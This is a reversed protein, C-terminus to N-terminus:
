SSKTEKLLKATWSLAGMAVVVIAIFIFGGDLDFRNVVQGMIPQSLTEGVAAFIMVTALAHASNKAAVSFVFPFVTAIGGGLLFFGISSVFVNPILVALLIGSVSVLCGTAIVAGAGFRNRLRDGFFRMFLLASAYVLYGVAGISEATNLFDTYFLAVWNMTSAETTAAFFLVLGLSIIALEPIYFGKKEAENKARVDPIHRFIVLLTIGMAAAFLIFHTLASVSQASFIAGLGAGTLNGLGFWSHIMSMKSTGMRTELNSALANISLNFVAFSAGAIAMVVSLVIWNPSLAVPILCLAVMWGSIQAMRRAGLKQVFVASIPLMLVSGLGRALLVYGLTVPVLLAINRVAPIRSAWTAFCAGILFFTASVAITEKKFSTQTGLGVTNL